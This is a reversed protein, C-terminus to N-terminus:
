NYCKWGGANKCQGSVESYHYKSCAEEGSVPKCENTYTWHTCTACEEISARICPQINSPQDECTKEPDVGSKWGNAYANKATAYETASETRFFFSSAAVIAKLKGEMIQLDMGARISDKIAGQVSDLKKKFFGPDTAPLEIAPAPVADVSVMITLAVVCLTFKM